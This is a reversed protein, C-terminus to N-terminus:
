QSTCLNLFSEVQKVCPSVVLNCGTLQTINQPGEVLVRCLLLNAFTSVRLVWTPITQNSFSMSLSVSTHSVCQQTPFALQKGKHVNDHDHM